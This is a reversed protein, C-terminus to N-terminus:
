KNIKQSMQCYWMTKINSTLINKEVNVASLSEFEVNKIFCHYLFLGYYSKIKLSLSFFIKEFIVSLYYAENFTKWPPLYINELASFLSCLALAFFFFFYILLEIVNLLVGRSGLRQPPVSKSLDTDDSVPHLIWTFVQSFCCIEKPLLWWPYKQNVCKFDFLSVAPILLSNLILAKMSFFTVLPLM